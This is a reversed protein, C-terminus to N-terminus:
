LCIALKETTRQSHAKLVDMILYVAAELCRLAAKFGCRIDESNRQDSNIKKYLNQGIQKSAKACENFTSHALLDLLNQGTKSLYTTVSQVCSTKDKLNKEREELCYFAEELNPKDQDRHDTEFEHFTTPVDATLLQIRTIFSEKMTGDKNFKSLLKVNNKTLFSKYKKYEKAQSLTTSVSDIRSDKETEKDRDSNSGPGSSDGDGPPGQDLVNPVIHGSKDAQSVIYRQTDIRKSQIANEIHAKEDAIKAAKADKRNLKNVKAQVVIL